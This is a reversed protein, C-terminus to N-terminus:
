LIVEKGSECSEYVARILKTTELGEEGTAHIKGNGNMVDVVNQIVKDHNSM